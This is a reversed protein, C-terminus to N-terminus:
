EELGSQFLFNMCSAYDVLIKRSRFAEWDHLLYEHWKTNKTKTKPYSINLFATSPIETSSCFIHVRFVSSGQRFMVPLANYDDIGFWALMEKKEQAQTGQMIFSNLFM